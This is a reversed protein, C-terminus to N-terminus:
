ELGGVRVLGHDHPKHALQKEVSVRRRGSVDAGVLYAADSAPAVNPVRGALRDLKHSIVGHLQVPQRLREPCGRSM